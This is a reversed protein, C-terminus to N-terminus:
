GRPPMRADIERKLALFFRDEEPSSAPPLPVGLATGIVRWSKELQHLSLMEQIRSTGLKKVTAEIEADTLEQILDSFRWNGKM